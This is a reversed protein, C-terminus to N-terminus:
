RPDYDFDAARGTGIRWAQFLGFLGMVVFALGVALIRVEYRRGGGDALTESAAFTVIVAAIGIAIGIIGAIGYVKAKHRRAAAHFEAIAADDNNESTM